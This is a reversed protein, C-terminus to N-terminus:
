MSISEDTVQELKLISEVFPKLIEDVGYEDVLKSKVLTVLQIVRLASRYRPEINGVVYYFAGLNYVM